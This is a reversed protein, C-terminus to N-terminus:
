STTAPDRVFASRFLLALHDGLRKHSWRRDVLLTEIMDTSILALLMDAATEVTWPAALRREQELRTALTRCTGYQAQRVRDRYRAADPDTRRVSEIARDVALLRPHYRALHRAWQDLATVADPAEWVPRLSDALGESEGAFQFLAAVLDARSSFHLYVARRSVGAREAVAAMTLAPFGAAQLISRATTLLAARTRRGRANVPQQNSRM